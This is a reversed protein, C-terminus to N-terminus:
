GVKATLSADIKEQEAKVKAAIAAETKNKVSEIHAIHKDYKENALEEKSIRSKGADSDM